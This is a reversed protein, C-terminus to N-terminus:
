NWKRLDTYGRLEAPNGRGLICDPSQELTSLQPLGTRRIQKVDRLSWQIDFDSRWQRSCWQNMHKGLSVITLNLPLSFIAKAVDDWRSTFCVIFSIRPFMSTNVYKWQPTPSSEQTGQVVLLDFRDIKLSVLGSYENSPSIGFSFSWYKPWRSQLTSEDSFVRISPFNSPPLLLPLCLILHSYSIVLKISM